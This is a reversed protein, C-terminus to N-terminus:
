KVKLDRFLYSVKIGLKTKLTLKLTADIKLTAGEVRQKEINPLTFEFDFYNPQSDSHFQYELTERVLELSSSAGAMKEVQFAMLSLEVHSPPNMDLVEIRGRTRQGLTAPTPSTTLYFDGSSAYASAKIVANLLILGGFIPFCFILYSVYSYQSLSTAEQYAIPCSLLLIFIAIYISTAYGQSDGKIANKAQSNLQKRKNKLKEKRKKHRSFEIWVPVIFAPFILAVLGKLDGSLFSSVAIIVSLVCFFVLMILLPYTYARSDPEQNKDKDKLLRKAQFYLGSIGLSATLFFFLLPVSISSFQLDRDIVALRPNEPNYWISVPKNDKKLANLRAYMKNNYGYSDSDENEFFSVRTNSFSKGGVKYHYHTTLTYTKSEYSRGDSDSDISTTVNLNLASIAATTTQWSKAEYWNQATTQINQFILYAVWTFVCCLVIWLLRFM